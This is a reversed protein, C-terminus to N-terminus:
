IDIESSGVFMFLGNFIIDTVIFIDMTYWKVLAFKFLANGTMEAATIHTFM